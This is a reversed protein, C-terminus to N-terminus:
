TNLNFSSFETQLLMQEIDPPEYMPMSQHPFALPLSLKNQFLLINKVTNGNEM